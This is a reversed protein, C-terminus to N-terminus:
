SRTTSTAAGASGPRKPQRRQISSCMDSADSSCCSRGSRLAHECGCSAGASAGCKASSTSWSSPHASSALEGCLTAVSTLLQRMDTRDSHAAFSASATLMACCRTSSRSLKGSSGGGISDCGSPARLPPPKCGICCAGCRMRKTLQKFAITPADPRPKALACSFADRTGRQRATSAWRTGASTSAALGGKVEALSSSATPLSQTSSRAFIKRLRIAGCWWGAARTSKAGSARGPTEFAVTTATRSFCSM